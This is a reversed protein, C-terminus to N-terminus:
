LTLLEERVRDECLGEGLGTSLVGSCVRLTDKGGPGDGGRPWARHDGELEWVERGHRSGSEVGCLLFAARRQAKDKVSLLIGSDWAAKTGDTRAEPGKGM